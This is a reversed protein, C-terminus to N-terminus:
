QDDECEEICYKTAKRECNNEDATIGKRVAENLCPEYVNRYAKDMYKGSGKMPDCTEECKASGKKKDDDKSSKGDDTGILLASFLALGIFSLTRRSM